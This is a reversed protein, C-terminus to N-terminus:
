IPFMFLFPFFGCVLISMMDFGSPAYLDKTFVDSRPTRLSQVPSISPPPDVAAAEQAGSYDGEADDHMYYLEHEFEHAESMKQRKWGSHLRITGVEDREIEGEGEGDGDGEEEEGRHGDRRQM